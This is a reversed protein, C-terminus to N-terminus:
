SRPEPKLVVDDPGTPWRFFETRLGKGVTLTRSQRLAEYEVFVTYAGPPLCALLWPGRARHRLIHDSAAGSIEVDVDTVFQGGELTFVLKLNHGSEVERLAQLETKGM